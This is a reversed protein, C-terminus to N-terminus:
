TLLTTKVEGAKNKIHIRVLGASDESIIIIGPQMERSIPVRRLIRFRPDKFDIDGFDEVDQHLSTKLEPDNESM